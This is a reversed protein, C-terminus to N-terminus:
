VMKLNLNMFRYSEWGKPMDNILAFLQSFINRSCDLTHYYEISDIDYM